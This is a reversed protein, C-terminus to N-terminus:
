SVMLLIVIVTTVIIIISIIIMNINIFQSEQQKVTGNVVSRVPACTFFCNFFFFFDSFLDGLAAHGLLTHGPGNDCTMTEGKLTTHGWGRVGNKFSFMKM